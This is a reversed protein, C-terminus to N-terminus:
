ETPKLNPNKKIDYDTNKQPKKIIKPVQEALCIRKKKKWLWTLMLLSLSALVVKSFYKM